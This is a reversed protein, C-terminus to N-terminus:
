KQCAAPKIIDIVAHVDKSRVALQTGDPSWFLRDPLLQFIGFEEVMTDSKLDWIRVTRDASATALLPLSPHWAVALVADDHVRLVRQEILTKGDRIRVKKDNGGEAIQRGDPSATLSGADPALASAVQKGNEVNWLILARDGISQEKNRYYLAIEVVSSNGVWRPTIDKIDPYKIGNRDVERLQKGSSTELIADGTWILNGKPSLHASAFVKKPYDLPLESIGDAGIRFLKLTEENTNDNICVNTCVLRGSQDTTIVSGPWTRGYGFVHSLTNKVVPADLDLVGVGTTWGDKKFLSNWRFVSAVCNPQTLFAFNDCASNSEISLTKEPRLMPIKFVKITDGRAAAILNSNRPAIISWSEPDRWRSDIPVHLSLLRKSNEPDWLQFTGFQKSNGGLVALMKRDPIYAFTGDFSTGSPLPLLGSIQGTSIDICRCVGNEAYFVSKWEPDATNLQRWDRVKVEPQSRSVKGTWPSRVSLGAKRGMLFVENGTQTFGGYAREDKLDSWLFSGTYADFVFVGNGFYSSLLLLSGDPNFDLRSHIDLTEFSFQIVTQPEGGAMGFVEIRFDSLSTESPKSKFSMVALRTGDSSVALPNQLMSYGGLDNKFMDTIAGTALDLLRIWGDSYPVLLTNTETPHAVPVRWNTGPKPVITLVSTDKKRDVYRWLQGRLDEPVMALAKIMQQRRGTEEAFEAVSLSAAAAARRSLEKEEFARKANAEAIVTQEEAKKSNAKAILEQKQAEQANRTAREAEENALNANQTAKAESKALQVTFVLATVLLLAAFSSAIRNRCILLWIQRGLGAQEAQTAFGRLYAELDAVFAAVSQYREKPDLAMAKMTVAQLASPVERQLRHNIKKEQSGAITGGPQLLSIEGTRLKQVIEVLNAGEIPPRYTLISYLTGGLSYIDSREDLRKGESQEPSMYQPTGEICQPADGADKFAPEDLWQALGWDMVLVEGYEGIM